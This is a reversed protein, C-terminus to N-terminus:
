KSFARLIFKIILITALLWGILILSAAIWNVPKNQFLKAQAKIRYKTMVEPPIM